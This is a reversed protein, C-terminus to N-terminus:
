KQVTYGHHVLVKQCLELYEELTMDSKSMNAKYLCIGLNSLSNDGGKSVPTKHDFSYQRSDYIDITEGTLYCTPNETIIALVEEVCFDSSEKDKNRMFESRKSSLIQQVNRQRKLLKERERYYTSKFSDLKTKIPDSRRRLDTRAQIKDKQTPDLYYSVTSKSCGVKQAIDDYSLGAKRLEVIEERKNM